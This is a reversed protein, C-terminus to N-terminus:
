LDSTHLCASNGSRNDSKEKWCSIEDIDSLSFENKQKRQLMSVLSAEKVKSSDSSNKSGIPSYGESVNNNRESFNLSATSDPQSKTTKAIKDEYESLFGPLPLNENNQIGSIIRTFDSGNFGRAKLDRKNHPTVETGKPDPLNRATEDENGIRVKDFNRGMIDSNQNLDSNDSRVCLSPPDIIIVTSTATNCEENLPPLRAFLNPLLDLLLSGDMDKLVRRNTKGFHVPEGTTSSRHCNNEEFSAPAEFNTLYLRESAKWAGGTIKLLAPSKNQSLKRLSSEKPDQTKADQSSLSVGEEEAQSVYGGEVANTGNNITSIRGGPTIKASTKPSENNLATTSLSTSQTIECHANSKNSGYKNLSVSELRQKRDKSMTPHLCNLSSLGGMSSFDAYSQSDNTLSFPKIDSFDISLSSFQSAANLAESEKNMEGPPSFSTEFIIDSSLEVPESISCDGLLKTEHKKKDRKTISSMTTLIESGEESYTEETNSYTQSESETDRKVEHGNGKDPKPEENLGVVSQEVAKHDVTETTSASTTMQWKTETTSSVPMKKHIILRPPIPKEKEPIDGQRNVVRRREAIIRLKEALDPRVEINQVPPAVMMAPLAPQPKLTKMLSPPCKPIEYADHKRRTFYRNYFYDYEEDSSWVEFDVEVSKTRLPVNCDMCIGKLDAQCLKCYFMGCRPCQTFNEQFVDKKAPNGPASCQACFVRSFGVLKLYKALKPNFFIFRDVFNMEKQWKIGM